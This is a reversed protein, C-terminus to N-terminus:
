NNEIEYDARHYGALKEQEEASAIARALMKKKAEFSYILMYVGLTLTVLCVFVGTAGNLWAGRTPAIPYAAVISTQLCLVSMLMVAFNIYRVSRVVLDDHKTSRVLNVIALVAKYVAVAAFVYIQWVPHRFGSGHWVLELVSAALALALVMMMVACYRYTGVKATQLAHENSRLEREDNRNQVLVGGRAVCLLIYYIGITGYWVSRYYFAMVILFVTYGLNCLFSIVGFLLTRFEYDTYLNRTFAYRGAVKRVKKNFKRIGNVVVTVTYIALIACLAYAIVAYAKRMSNAAVVLVILPCVILATAVVLLAVWNPPNHLKKWLRLWAVKERVRRRRM